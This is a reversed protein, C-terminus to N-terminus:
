LCGLHTGRLRAGGAPLLGLRVVGCRVTQGPMCCGGLVRLYELGCVSHLQREHGSISARRLRGRPVWRVKSDIQKQALRACAHTSGRVKMRRQISKTAGGHPWLATKDLLLKRGECWGANVVWHDLPSKKEQAAKSRRVDAACHQKHYEADVAACTSSCYFM